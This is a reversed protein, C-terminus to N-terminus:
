DQDDHTTVAPARRASFERKLAAWRLASVYHITSSTTVDAM